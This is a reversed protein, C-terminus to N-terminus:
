SFTYTCTVNDGAVLTVSVEHGDVIPNGGSCTIDSLTLGTEKASLRYTGPLLDSFTFSQSHTLPVKLLADSFKQIRHNRTDAVYVNGAGDAAVGQPMDFQGDAAGRGKGWQGLYDGQNGFKQIRDNGMDAVYARGKADTAVGTPQQFQGDGTGHGHGAWQNAPVTGQADRMGVTHNGHDAVFVNRWADVAVGMPLSYGDWESRMHGSSEFKLIRKKLTDVVYFNGATDVAVGGPRFEQSFVDGTFENLFNGDGDFVQIRRNERDAVYVNNGADVAVGVPFRFSGHGSGWAGWQGLYGGNSDFKQIRNNSTDAVYVNGARDM